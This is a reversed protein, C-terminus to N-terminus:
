EPLFIRSPRDRHSYDICLEDRATTAGVIRASGDVGREIVRISGERSCGGYTAFM